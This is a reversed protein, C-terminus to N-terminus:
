GVELVGDEEAQEMLSEILAIAKEVKALQSEDEILEGALGNHFIDYLVDCSFKPEELEKFKFKM